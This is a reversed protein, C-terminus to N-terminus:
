RANSKSKVEDPLALQTLAYFDKDSIKVFGGSHDPAVADYALENQQHMSLLFGDLLKKLETPADSRITHPGNPVLDSQWIVRIDSSKALGTQNILHDITGASYGLKFDGQLTSWGIVADAGNNKVTRWGDVPHDVDILTGLDGSKDFGADRLRKLPLTRTIIAPPKSVALRRGKLDNLNRVDSEYPALIIAHIGRAGQQDTPVAIPKLCKCRVQTSVYSSASHIAYQVRRNIQMTALQELTKAPRFLVRLGTARELARRFAEMKRRQRQRDGQILYGVALVGFSDRWNSILEVSSTTGTDITPEIATDDNTIVEITEENAQAWSGGMTVISASLLLSLFHKSIM